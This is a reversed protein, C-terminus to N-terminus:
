AEEADRDLPISRGDLVQAAERLLFQACAEFEDDFIREPEVTGADCELGVRLGRVIWWPTGRRDEWDRISKQEGPRRSEEVIRCLSPVGTM